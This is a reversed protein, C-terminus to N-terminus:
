RGSADKLKEWRLMAADFQEATCSTLDTIPENWIFSDCDREDFDAYCQRQSPRATFRYCLQRRDCKVNQCMTIDPLRV